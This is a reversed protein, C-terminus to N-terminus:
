LSPFTSLIFFIEREIFELDSVIVEENLCNRGCEQRM